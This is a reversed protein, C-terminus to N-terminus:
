SAMKELIEERSPNEAWIGWDDSNVRNSCNGGASTDVEAREIADEESLGENLGRYYEETVEDDCLLGPANDVIWDIAEGFADDLSNGWVMLYTPGCAGFWLIYRSHTYERDGGNVPIIETTM